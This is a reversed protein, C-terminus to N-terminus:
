CISLVLQTFWISLIHEQAAVTQQPRPLSGRVYDSNIFAIFLFWSSQHLCGSSHGLAPLGPVPLRLLLAWAPTVCAVREGWRPQQAWCLTFPYSMGTHPPQM